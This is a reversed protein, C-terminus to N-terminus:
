EHAAHEPGPLHAMYQALFEAEVQARSALLGAATADLRAGEANIRLGARIEKDCLLSVDHVPRGKDIGAILTMLEELEEQSWGDGHEIGWARGGLLAQGERVAAEIWSKRHAPDAWRSELVGPITAWMEQLLARTQQQNRQRADLLARAQMQRLAQRRQERERAVARSLNARAEQRASRLIDRAQSLADNRLQACRQERNKSVSQLMADVQADVVSTPGDFGATGTRRSNV